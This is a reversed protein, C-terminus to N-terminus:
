LHVQLWDPEFCHFNSLFFLNILIRNKSRKWFYLLPCAGGINLKRLRRNNLPGTAWCFVLMLGVKVSFDPGFLKMYGMLIKKTKAFEFQKKFNTEQKKFEQSTKDSGVLLVQCVWSARILHNKTNMVMADPNTEIIKFLNEQSLKADKGSLSGALQTIKLTLEKDPQISQQAFLCCNFLGVVLIILVRTAIGLSKLM